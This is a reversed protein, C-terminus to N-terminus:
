VTGNQKRPDDAGQQDPQRRVDDVIEPYGKRDRRKEDDEHKEDGPEEPHRVARDGFVPVLAEHGGDGVSLDDNRFLDEFLLEQLTVADLNRHVHVEEVDVAVEPRHVALDNVVLVMGALVEKGEVRLRGLEVLM